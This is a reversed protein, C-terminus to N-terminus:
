WWGMFSMAAIAAMFATSGVLIWIGTRQDRTM